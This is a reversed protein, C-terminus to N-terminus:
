REESRQNRTQNNRTSATISFLGATARNRKKTDQHRRPLCEFRFLAVASSFIFEALKSEHVVFFLASFDKLFFQSEKSMGFSTKVALYIARCHFHLHISFVPSCQSRNIEQKGAPLDTAPMDHISIFGPMIIFTRRQLKMNHRGIKGTHFNDTKTWKSISYFRNM